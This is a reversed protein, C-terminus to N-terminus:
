KLDKSPLAVAVAVLDDANKRYYTPVRLFTAYFNYSKSSTFHGHITSREQTFCTIQPCQRVSM